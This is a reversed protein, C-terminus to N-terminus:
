MGMWFPLIQTSSNSNDPEIEILPYGTPDFVLLAWSNLTSALVTGTAGFTYDASSDIAITDCYRWTFGSNALALPDNGDTVTRSGGLFTITMLPVPVFKQPSRVRTQNAVLPGSWDVPRWGWISASGGSNDAGVVMFALGVQRAGAPSFVFRDLANDAGPTAKSQPESFEDAKSAPTVVNTTRASGNLLIPKLFDCTAGLRQTPDKRFVASQNSVSPM